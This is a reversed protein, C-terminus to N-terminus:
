TNEPEFRMTWCQLRLRESLYRDEFEDSHLWTGRFSLDRLEPLCDLSPLQVQGAAASVTEAGCLVDLAAYLWDAPGIDTDGVTIKEPLFGDSPLEKASARVAAATLSVDKEASAPQSLFGYVKGCDYAQATEETLFVRCAHFLDSLCYSGPTTLPFLATKLQERIVPLDARRIVRPLMGARRSAVEEYTTINFRPDEKVLRVFLRMNEFFRATMEEARRPAEVWEGFPYQNVKDYNLVDWSEAFMSVHPHTYIIVNRRGALQDLLARMEAEGGDFFLSEMAYTYSMQYINCYYVGQGDPTDCVTDAYIPVGMDAYAYMAAYSKQNGPPVAAYVRPIQTAHRILAIAETEQCLVEDRAADFDEIDTYENILPHYTHGWTHSDIEHYSLAELVDKRGWAELQQALLGVLCFCGRVGAERLIEAETFIADAAINSTFDETDFSFILDTKM